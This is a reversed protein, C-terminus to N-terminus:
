RVVVGCSGGEIVELSSVSWFFSVAEDEVDAPAGNSLGDVARGPPSGLGVPSTAAMAGGIGGRTSALGLGATLAGTAVGLGSLENGTEITTRGAPATAGEESV